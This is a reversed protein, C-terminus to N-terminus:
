MRQREIEIQHLTNFPDEVKASWPDEEAQLSNGTRWWDSYAKLGFVVLRM